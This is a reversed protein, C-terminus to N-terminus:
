GSRLRPDEFRRCSRSSGSGRGANRYSHLSSEHNEKSRNGISAAHRGCGGIDPGPFITSSVRVAMRTAFTDLDETNLLSGAQFSLAMRPAAESQVGTVEVSPNFAKVAIGIGEILSGNGFPVLMMDIEPLNRSLILQKAENLDRGIFELDAGFKNILTVKSEGAKVPVGITLPLRYQRCAYAITAGHNGTSATVM